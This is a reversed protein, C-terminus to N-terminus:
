EIVLARDLCFETLGGSLECDFSCMEIVELVDGDVDGSADEGDNGAHGARALARQDMTDEELLMWVSDHNVLGWDASGVAGVRGSIYADKIRNAFGKGLGISSVRSQETEIGFAGAVIAFARAEQCLVEAKEVVGLCRTVDAAPLAKLVVHELVFVM